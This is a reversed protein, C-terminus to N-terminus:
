EKSGIKDLGLASIAPQQVAEATVDVVATVSNIHTWRHWTYEADGNWGSSGRLAYVRGSKTVGCMTAPDFQVIASSVRGERDRANYGAFHRTRVASGPLLVEFVRWDTLVLEPRESVPACSWVGGQIDAALLKRQKTM